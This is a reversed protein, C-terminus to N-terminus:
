AILVVVKEKNATVYEEVFMGSMVREITRGPVRGLGKMIADLEPGKAMRLMQIEETTPSSADIFMDRSYIEASEKAGVYVKDPYIWIIDGETTHIVFIEENSPVSKQVMFRSFSIGEKDVNHRSKLVFVIRWEVGAKVKAVASSIGPLKSITEHNTDKVFLRIMEEQM